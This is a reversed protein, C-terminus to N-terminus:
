MLVKALEQVPLVTVNKDIPYAEKGPYIVYGKHCSLDAWASWFGRSLKPSLSYKVEIAIIRNKGDLLLLDIEAGAATRYFFAQWDAPVISMLQEVVFGEWSSGVSPHGQLDEITRIKLLTHLIGSDRIYVKPSKILRKKINLHYPQLQRVIFTDDIIDLYHRVTPASVGLSNAIQSANWLQGHLHAVMTWFRRLESSPVRVGLQPIEMELYTRVFAERWSFSETGDKSLFSLPYGGQLWLATVRKKSVEDITFPTLEHYMIRGALTESTQKILDPSASGLLLFRGATREQDILARMLPFLSPMRQMEDVIVLRDSFQGLYLEADQLKATDSPLELDIYAAERKMKPRIAKALTTKGVQRPGVLGVAPYKSLSDEIQKQIRRQIMM